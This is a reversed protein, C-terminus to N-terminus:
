RTLQGPCRPGGEQTKPHPSLRVRHKWVAPGGEWLPLPPGTTHDGPPPDLRGTCVQRGARGRFAPSVPKSGRDQRIWGRGKCVGEPHPRHRRGPGTRVGVQRLAAPQAQPGHRRRGPVPRRRGRHTHGAAPAALDPQCALETVGQEFTGSKGMRGFVEFPDGGGDLAVTLYLEGHSTTLVATSSPLVRPRPRLTKLGHEQQGGRGPLPPLLGTQDGAPGAGRPYIQRPGAPLGRPDKEVDGTGVPHIAPSCSGNPWMSSRAACTRSRRGPRGPVLAHGPREDVLDVLTASTETM